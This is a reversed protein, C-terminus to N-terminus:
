RPGSVVMLTKPIKSLGSRWGLSSDAVLDEHQQLCFSNVRIFLNVMKYLGDADLGFDSSSKFGNEFTTTEHLKDPGARVSVYKAIKGNPLVDTTEEGLRFKYEKNFEGADFRMVFNDGNDVVTVVPKM